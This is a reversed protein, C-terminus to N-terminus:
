RLRSSFVYANCTENDDFQKKLGSDSLLSERAPKCVRDLLHRLKEKTKLDANTRALSEIKDRQEVSGGKVQEAQDLLKHKLEDIESELKRM